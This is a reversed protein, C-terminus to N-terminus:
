GGGGPAEENVQGGEGKRDELPLGSGLIHTRTVWTDANAALHARDPGWQGCVGVFVELSLGWLPPPPDQENM